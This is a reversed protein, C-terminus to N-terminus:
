MPDQALISLLYITAKFVIEDLKEVEEVSNLRQLKVKYKEIVECIFYVRSFELYFADNKFGRTAKSRESLLYFM